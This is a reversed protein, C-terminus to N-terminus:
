LASSGISDRYSCYRQVTVQIEPDNAPFTNPDDSSICCWIRQQIPFNEPLYGQLTLGGDNITAPSTLQQTIRGLYKKPVTMSCYKLALGTGKNTPDVKSPNLTVFKTMIPTFYETSMRNLTPTALNQLKQQSAVAPLQQIGALAVPTVLARSKQKFLDIRVRKNSIQQGGDPNCIIRFTLKLDNIFAIGTDVVDSNMKEYYTNNNPVFNSVITNATGAPNLQYWPAGEFGIVPNAATLDNVCCFLPQTATPTLPRNLIHLGKQTHGYQARKLYRVDRMLTNVAYANRRVYTRTTKKAPPPKVGTKRRRYNTRRAGYTRRRYTRAYAM